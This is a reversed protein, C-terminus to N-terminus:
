GKALYEALQDLTGTWGQRMSDRGAEFTKRETETASFLVRRVTVTTRGEHEALTVTSLTQLPWTPNWPHRVVNGEEDSFSVIFVLERPADFVRSIVLEREAPKTAPSGSGTAM